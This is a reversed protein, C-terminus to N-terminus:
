STGEPHFLRVVEDLRRPEVLLVLDDGAVLQTSGRVPVLVGDRVLLSIWAGDPLLGDAALEGVTRDAAPAASAVTIRSVREPQRRLRVGFSFPEPEVSTMPISLLRAVFPVLGGQVVVSFLVVVVVIGYLRVPQRVTSGFLYTGLLIPVAGKLGAFSVFHRENQELRTPALCLEVAVPRIVFTLAAGLALGPLWVDLHALEGLDITLGLAIFAVIEGLSALAGHFREIERRYPVEEDGAVIGAVFVALFGSGHALTGIGFLLFAGALTRLPYLGESPLHVRQGLWVLARGGVLGVALGVAMQLLFTGAIDGFAGTHLGGVTALGAMLAIGVPDNAGSEGELITGSRGTVERRGLVSFVVAPDTPAVATGVLAAPYWGLGFAAHVLVAAGAATLFTGLLGTATVPGAAATLRARGLHMGGNFLMVVLAVAVLHEVTPHPAARLHHDLAAAVAAAVLFLAPAPVRSWTTVRSSLVAVLGAAAALAVALVFPDTATM